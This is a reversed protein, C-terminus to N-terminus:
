NGFLRRALLTGSKIAVPTLELTGDRADGLGWIHPVNTQDSENCILKKNRPNVEVGANQLNLGDTVAYRGIALLVSDWQGM